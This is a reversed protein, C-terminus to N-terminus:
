EDHDVRDDPHEEAGESATEPPHQPYAGAGLTLMRRRRLRSFTQRPMPVGSEDTCLFPDAPSTEGTSVARRDIVRTQLDREGWSPRHAGGVAGSM